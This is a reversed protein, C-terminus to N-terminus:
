FGNTGTDTIWGTILCHQSTLFETDRAYNQNRIAVHFYIFVRTLLGIKRSGLEPFKHTIPFKTQQLLKEIYKISPRTIYPKLKRCSPQQFQPSWNRRPMFTQRKHTNHMTLYLDRSRASWGDLTTRSFTNHRVSHGRSIEVTVHGLGGLATYGHFLNLQRNIPVSVKIIHYVVATTFLATQSFSSRESFRSIEIM